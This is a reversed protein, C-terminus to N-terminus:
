PASRACRLGVDYGWPSPHPPMGRHTLRLRAGAAHYCGGRKVHGLDSSATTRPNRLASRAYATEHYPDAVWEAVNGALQQAGYPSQGAAYGRAPATTGRCTGFNALRCTPADDGWPYARRGRAGRAAKEWEAETPLRKGAWGCYARAQKWSVCNIPHNARDARGWNCLEKGYLVRSGTLRTDTCGGAKVCRGYDAVTVEHRDLLFADLHVRQVPRQDVPGDPAGRTFAGAPVCVMGAPARGCAQRARSRVCRADRGKGKELTYGRRCCRILPGRVHASYGKRCVCKKRKASYRLNPDLKDCAIPQAHTAAPIACLLPLALALIPARAPASM